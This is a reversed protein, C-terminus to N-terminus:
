SFENLLDLINQALIEPTFHEYFMEKSNKSVEALIEPKQSLFKIKQALSEPNALPTFFGTEGEKIIERIAPADGSLYPIGLSLSEFAKHPITRNLRPNDELQGLSLDARAMEELMKEQPLFDTLLMVKTLNMESIIAKTKELLQGGGMIKFLINENKLIEAAKLIHTIGSEPTLRGRFLVIFKDKAVKNAELKSFDALDFGTYIVKYKESKGFKQEFYEKQAHSELLIIDAFKVALWDIIKTKIKKFFSPNHSHVEADYLSGLLDAIVKKNSILKALPVVLHGPYGVIMADYSHEISKHKQWLNWYKVIGNSNDRCELIEAGLERLGSIYIKNRSFDPNYIGFYCIKIKNKQM